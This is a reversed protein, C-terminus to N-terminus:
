KNKIMSRVGDEFKKPIIDFTDWWKDGKFKEGSILSKIQDRTFKPKPLFKEQIMVPIELIELPVSVVLRKMKSTNLICEVMRKLTVYEFGHIELVKNPYNNNLLYIVIKAIDDVYVPQRGFNGGGPLPIIPVKKIFGILWGVNKDDGPGYIMSPRLLHYNLGSKKIIQEQQKKSHAYWDLRISTVAASSFVIIKKIKAVKAADILNKTAVVNNQIFPKKTKSSIQAALHVIYDQDGLNNQWSGKKSLDAVIIKVNGPIFKKEDSNKVVATVKFKNSILLPVLNRGVFGAAGTVLVKKM